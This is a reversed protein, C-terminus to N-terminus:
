KDTTNRQLAQAALLKAATANDLKPNYRMTDATGGLVGGQTGGRLVQNGLYAQGPATNGLLRGVSRGAVGGVAPAGLLGLVNPDAGLLTHTLSDAGGHSALTGAAAAGLLPSVYQGLGAPKPTVNGIESAAKSVKYLDSNPSGSAASYAAKPDYTGPVSNATNTKQLIKGQEYEKFLEPWGTGSMKSDLLQSLQTVARGSAQDGRSYLDSARDSLGKRINQYMTGEVIPRRPAKPDYKLDTPDQFVQNMAEQIPSPNAPDKNLKGGSAQYDKLIRQKAAELGPEQMLDGPSAPNPVLFPTSRSTAALADMKKGLEGQAGVGMQQNIIPGVDQGSSATKADVGAGKLAFSTFQKPDISPDKGTWSKEWGQLTPSGTKLGASVDMGAGKLTKAMALQADSAAFPTIGKRMMAPLATGVVTGIANSYPDLNSYGNKNTLEEAGVGGVASGAGTLLKRALASGTSAAPASSATPATRGLARALATGGSALGEGIKGEPFALAPLAQIFQDVTKATMGQPEYLPGTMPEVAKLAKSRYSTNDEAGQQPPTKLLTGSAGPIDVQGGTPAQNITADAPGAPQIKGALYKGAKMGAAGVDLLSGATGVGMKVVSSPITQAVDANTSVGGQAKAIAASLEDDSM